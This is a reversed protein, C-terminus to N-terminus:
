PTPITKTHNMRDILIKQQEPTLTSKSSGGTFVKVLIYGSLLVVVLLLAVLVFNAQSESKVINRGLLFGTLGGQSSRRELFKPKKEKRKADEIFGAYPDPTTETLVRRRQMEELFKKSEIEEPTEPTKPENEHM